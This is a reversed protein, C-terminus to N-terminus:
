KSIYFKEYAKNIEDVFKKFHNSCFELQKNNITLMIESPEAKKFASQEQLCIDCTGHSINIMLTM